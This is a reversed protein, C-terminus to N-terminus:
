FSVLVFRWGTAVPWRKVVRGQSQM